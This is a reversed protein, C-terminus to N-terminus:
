WLELPTNKINDWKDGAGKTERDGSNMTWLRLQPCMASEEGWVRRGNGGQM